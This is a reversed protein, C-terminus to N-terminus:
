IITNGWFNGILNEGHCKGSIKSDKPLKESMEMVDKLNGSM